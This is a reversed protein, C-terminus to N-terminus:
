DSGSDAMHDLTIMEDVGRPAESSGLNAKIAVLKTAVDIGLRNHAKIYVRGWASWNREAAASTVHVALLRVAAKAMLPFMGSAKSAWFNRRQTASAVQVQLEVVNGRKVRYVWKAMLDTFQTLQAGKILYNSISAPKKVPSPSGEDNLLNLTPRTSSNLTPRTRM